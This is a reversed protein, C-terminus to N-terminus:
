GGEGLRGGRGCDGQGSGIAASEDCRRQHTARNTRVRSQDATGNAQEKLLNARATALGARTNALDATAQEVAGQFLAPDIEALLQGKKVKSNFDVYLRSVRGSVQSGVQVSTVANIQGTAEVVDRIDGREVKATFVQVKDKRTLKFAAFVVVAIVAVAM